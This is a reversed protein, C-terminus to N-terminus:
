AGMRELLRSLEQELEEVTADNRVAFDAREAKEDQSLQRSERSAVGTHGREGMRESRLEDDAVVAITHDFAAEMGSEFLLPVEVVAARPQPDLRRLEDRWAVIRQGVRPWLYGELWERDEPREFVLAGVADRDVKGGPAVDPGLRAVLEDRAEDSALLEHVVADSSLTAAGLRELALLAESKGAAIGGTLGVFPIGGRADDGAV